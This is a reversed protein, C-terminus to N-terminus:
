TSLSTDTKTGVSSGSIGDSDDAPLLVLNSSGESTSSLEAAKSTALPPPGSAELLAGSSVRARRKGCVLRAVRLDVSSRHSPSTRLAM